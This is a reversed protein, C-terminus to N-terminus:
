EIIVVEKVDDFAKEDAIDYVKRPLRVTLERCGLFAQAGISKVEEPITLERLSACTHFALRGIITLTRPLTISELNTCGEFASCGISEVGEPIVASSILACNYFAKQPINKVRPPIILEELCRCGAFAEEGISTVSDPMRISKTYLCGAFARHGISTVGNQIIIRELSVSCNFADDCIRTVRKPIKFESDGRGAPYQVLAKGGATYLIGKDSIYEGNGRTVDIRTLRTCFTFAGTGIAQVTSPIKLETLGKCRSFAEAGIIRLGEPLNISRLGECGAFARKYIRLFGEPLEVSQIDDRNFFACEGIETIGVPIVAVPALSMYKVLLEGKVFNKFCFDVLPNKRKRFLRGKLVGPVGSPENQRNERSKIETAPQIAYRKSRQNTGGDKEILSGCGPCVRDGKIEMGCRHCFRKNPKTGRAYTDCGCEPCIRESDEIKSNCEPCKKM